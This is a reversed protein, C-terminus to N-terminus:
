RRFPQLLRCSDNGTIGEGISELAANGDAICIECSIMQALPVQDTGVQRARVTEAIKKSSDDDTVATM